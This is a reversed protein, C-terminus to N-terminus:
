TRIADKSTYNTPLPELRNSRPSSFNREMGGEVPSREVVVEVKGNDATNKELRKGSATMHVETSNSSSTHESEAGRSRYSSFSEALKNGPGKRMGAKALINTVHYKEKSLAMKVDAPVDPIIYAILFKITFVIHEFGIILWLRSLGTVHETVIIVQETTNTTSNFITETTNTKSPEGEWSRGYSSTFAVLFSNTVVGAVNLFELISYWTGIDEARFAVPRRNTWLLRRADVKMDIANTLLAILPALPFAAAFLMLFGYQLVKENYESLTFDGLEAKNRERELYDEVSVTIEGSVSVRNSCCKRRWLSVLWPKIVDSFLKPLPKMIMLMAVQLSLLSMCDNNEGCEDSYNEGKGIVGSEKTGQRFFAIYFLSTYSNVFQFGFLKLILADEYSTQTRHNEWDTLYVALKQYIKGMIMISVTNLFTSTVSAILQGAEGRSQFLDVRAIVRYIIVAVVSALVLCIMFLMVGFSGMMKFVRRLAPYVSIDEGTVPDKKIVTGYYQPRNPEQEEFTDVDWQYSLRANTRKWRELFFTGWLCIILAFFPTADNDFANKAWATLTSTSTTNEDKEGLPNDRIAVSLGWLFIALGLLMPIVLSMTLLGLWGFYLAIKEGFYNRIKWLPQYRFHKLWTDHLAKRPDAIDQGHPFSHDDGADALPFESDYESKEHLIFADTYAEEMLMYGLGQANQGLRKSEKDRVDLDTLIHHVLLSRLAPRFFTDPNEVGEYIQSKSVCFPASVFDVEDDTKFNDWFQKWLSNRSTEPVVYGALPMELSVHEAEECLREFSCHLIVFTKNSTYKREVRFGQLHLEAEFKKRLKEHLNRNDGTRHVLVYDHHLYKSNKGEESKSMALHLALKRLDKEDRNIEARSIPHPSNLEEHIQILQERSAVPELALQVRKPQEGNSNSSVQRLIGGNQRESFPLHDNSNSNKAKKKKKKVRVKPVTGDGELIRDKDNGDLEAM